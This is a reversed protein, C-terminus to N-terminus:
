CTEGRGKCRSTGQDEDGKVLPARMFFTMAIACSVLFLCFLGNDDDDGEGPEGGDCRSESSHRESLGCVFSAFVSGLLCNSHPRNRPAGQATDGDGESGIAIRSGRGTRQEPSPLYRARLSHNEARGGSGSRVSNYVL